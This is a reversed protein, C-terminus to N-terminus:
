LYNLRITNLFIVFFSLGYSIIECSEEMEVKEHEDELAESQHLPPQEQPEKLQNEEHVSLPPPGSLGYIEKSVGDMETKVTVEIQDVKFSLNHVKKAPNEVM